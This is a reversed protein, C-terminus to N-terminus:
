RVNVSGPGTERITIPRRSSGASKSVIKYNTHKLSRKALRVFGDVRRNARTLAKSNAYNMRRRKKRLQGDPGVQYGTAGGPAMRQVMGAIGPTRIVPAAQPAQPTGTFSRVAGSIAGIPGGTLFGGVAGTIAGGLSSLFGPDGARYYDGVGYYSM